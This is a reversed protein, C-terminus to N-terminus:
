RRITFGLKTFMDEALSQSRKNNIRIEFHVHPGTSNGTSGEYMILTGKSVKQGAKAVLSSAHAYLTSVGNGHDIIVYNGYSYHTGATTVTGDAAAYVPTGGNQTPNIDVAGHNAYSGVFSIPDKIPNSLLVGNVNYSGDLEVTGTAGGDQSSDTDLVSDIDVGACSFMKKMINLVSNIWNDPPVCYSNGISSVTYNGGAFYYSSGNIRRAFDKTADSFNNYKAWKTGNKDTYYNSSGGATFSMWNYTSPDILGWNTGASSETIAVAMTFVGNVKYEQQSEYIADLAGLLNERAKSGPKYYKTIATRLQDKTLVLEAESKTIDVIIDSATSNVRLEIDDYISLDLNDISYDGKKYLQILYKFIEAQKQTSENNILELFIGEDTIIKNGVSANLNSNPVRYPVDWQAVISKAKAEVAQKDVNVTSREWQNYDVRDTQTYTCSGLSYETDVRKYEHVQVPERKGTKKNTEFRTRVNDQFDVKKEPLPDPCAVDQVVVEQGLPYDVLGQNNIYSIDQKAMWTDVSTIQASSEVTTTIITKKYEEKHVIPDLNKTNDPISSYALGGGEVESGNYTKQVVNVTWDYWSNYTEVRMSDQITIVIEGNLVHQEIFQYVYEPNQTVFCLALPIEIPMSYKEVTKKYNVSQKTVTYTVQGNDEVQVWNFFYLNGDNDVSFVRKSMERLQEITYGELVDETKLSTVNEADKGFFQNCFMNATEVILEEYNKDFNHDDEYELWKGQSPMASKVASVTSPSIINNTGNIDESDYAVLLAGTFARIKELPHSKEMQTFFASSVDFNWSGTSVSGTQKSNEYLSNYDGLFELGSLGDGDAPAWLAAASVNDLYESAIRGGMSHGVIGIKDKDISLNTQMYKIASDIDSKMNNLTYKTSLETSDGCGSFDITVSAIGNSALLKGLKIFCENDGKKNGTFGHCMVVLPMNEELKTPKMIIAPIKVGSRSSQITTSTPIITSVDVSGDVIMNSNIAYLMADFFDKRVYEMDTSTTGDSDHEARKIKIIGNYHNEDETIGFDPYQTALQALLFQKLYKNRQKINEPDNMDKSYDIDGSLYLSQMSFGKKQIIRALNELQEDQINIGNDLNDTSSVSVFSSGLDDVGKSISSLMSTLIAYLFGIILIVGLIVLLYPLIASFVKAAVSAVKQKAASRAKETANKAVNGAVKGVQKAAQVAKDNELNEIDNIEEDNNNNEPGM